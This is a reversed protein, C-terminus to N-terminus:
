TFDDAFICIIGPKAGLFKPDACLTLLTEQVCKFQLDLLVKLNAKILPCLDHPITFVVHYYAIGAILETNRELEWKKELPAQCCPCSRNNCSVSHIMPFGCDECCSVNYGLEGTNCHMISAATKQRQVSLAPHLRQYEPYFRRFADRIPYDTSTM